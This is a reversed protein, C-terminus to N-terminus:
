FTEEHVVEVKFYVTSVTQGESGGYALHRHPLRRYERFRFPATSACNTTFCRVLDEETANCSTICVFTGQKVFYRCLASVYASIEDRMYFIDFTGKDHVVDYKTLFLEESTILCVVSNKSSADSMLLSTAPQQNLEVATIDMVALRVELDTHLAPQGGALVPCQQVFRNLFLKYSVRIADEIYDCGFLRTFGM